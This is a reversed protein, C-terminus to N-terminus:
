DTAMLVASTRFVDMASRNTEFRREHCVEAEFPPSRHTTTAAHVSLLQLAALDQWRFPMRRSSGTKDAKQDKARRQLSPSCACPLASFCQSALKWMAPQQRHRLQRSDVLEGESKCTDTRYPSVIADTVGCYSNIYQAQGDSASDKRQQQDLYSIRQCLEKMTDQQERQRNDLSKGTGGIHYQRPSSACRMTWNTKHHAQHPTRM